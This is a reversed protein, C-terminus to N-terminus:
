QVANAPVKAIVFCFMHRIVIDGDPKIRDGGSNQFRYYFSVPLSTFFNKHSITDYELIGVKEYVEGNVRLLMLVGTKAGIAISVGEALEPNNTGWFVAAFVYDVGQRGNAGATHHQVFDAM